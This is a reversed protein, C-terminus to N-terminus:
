TWGRCWTEWEEALCRPDSNDESGTARAEPHPAEPLDALVAAPLVVAPVAAQLRRVSDHGLIILILIRHIL